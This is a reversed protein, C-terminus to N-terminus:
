NSKYLEVMETNMREMYLRVGLVDQEEVMGGTASAEQEGRHLEEVWRDWKSLPVLRVQWHQTWLDWSKNNFLEAQALTIMSKTPNASSFQQPWAPAKDSKRAVGLFMFYERRIDADADLTEPDYGGAYREGCSGCGSSADSTEPAYTDMVVPRPLRSIDSWNCPNGVEVDGGIDIGGWVYYAVMYVTQWQLESNPDSPNLPKPKLGIELDYTTEYTYSDKWVYPGIRPVGWKQPDNWGDAWIAIPRDGNTRYTGPKLWGPGPPISSAIEVLYFMTRNVKVNPDQAKQRALTYDTIWQPKHYKKIDKPGFMYGLKIKSLDSLYPYFYTDQLQGPHEETRVAYWHIRRLAWIYPGYTTYGTAQWRSPVMRGAVGGSTRASGGIRRGGASVSGGGGRVNPGATGPDYVWEIARQTYDRWRFLRAWPGLRHPWLPEPIAGGAGGSESVSVGNDGVQMKGEIVPRFNAFSGRVAPFVPRVPAMFATDIPNAQGFRVANSQALQPASLKTAWSFEGLAAAARWLAGTPATGGGSSWYTVTAMDFGSDNMRQDVPALIDRQAAMRTRLSRLGELILDRGGHEDSLSGGQDIQQALRQEWAEAEDHAMESALPLSDMVPVLAIMRSQAVNNAAITNMSRAMWTAGSIATSDAANQAAVRTNVVHGINYVYFILGVLLSLALLTIVLVQGGCRFRASRRM